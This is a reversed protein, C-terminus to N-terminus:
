PSRAANAHERVVRTEAASENRRALLARRLPDLLGPLTSEVM